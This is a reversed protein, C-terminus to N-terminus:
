RSRKFIFGKFAKGTKIYKMLTDYGISFETKCEVTAYKGVLSNDSANYVSIMKNLKAITGASKIVGFQPNNVGSKDRQQMALFEPSKERSHM